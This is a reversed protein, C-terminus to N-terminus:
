FERLHESIRTKQENKSGRLASLTGFLFTAAVAYGEGLRLVLYLSLFCLTAELLFSLASLLGPLWEWRGSLCLLARLIREGDRGGVPLLNSLATLLHLVLLTGFYARDLRLFPLTFLAGALNALPGGAAVLLEERYSLAGTRMRLGGASVRVGRVRRRLCWLVFLHGGEHWLLVVLTLVAVYVANFALLVCCLFAAFLGREVKKAYRAYVLGLREKM